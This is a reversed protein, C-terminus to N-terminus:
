ESVREFTVLVKRKNECGTAENETSIKWSKKAVVLVTSLAHRQFCKRKDQHDKQRESQERKDQSSKSIMKRRKKGREEKKEEKKGEREEKRREEAKGAERFTSLIWPEAYM